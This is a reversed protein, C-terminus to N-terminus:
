AKSRHPHVGFGGAAEALGLLDSESVLLDASAGCDAAGGSTHAGAWHILYAGNAAPPRAVVVFSGGDRAMVDSALVCTRGAQKATVSVSPLGDTMLRSSFDAIDGVTPKLQEALQLCMGVVIAMCVLAMAIFTVVTGATPTTESSDPTM